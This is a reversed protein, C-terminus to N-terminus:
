FLGLVDRLNGSKGTSILLPFLTPSARYLIQLYQLVAEGQDRYVRVGNSLTSQEQRARVSPSYHRETVKISSHGLLVSMREM